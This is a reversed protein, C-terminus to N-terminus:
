LCSQGTVRSKWEPDDDAAALSALAPFCWAFEFPYDILRESFISVLSVWVMVSKLNSRSCTRSSIWIEDAVELSGDLSKCPWGVISAPGTIEVRPPLLTVTTDVSWDVL